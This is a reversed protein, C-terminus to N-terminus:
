RLVGRAKGLLTFLEDYGGDKEINSRNTFNRDDAPQLNQVDVNIPLDYEVDGVPIRHITLEQHVPTRLRETHRVSIVRWRLNESEVLIDDPSVPPFSIMRAGTDYQTVEQLSTVQHNKGPPDIQVYVEIPPLYGGLYGTGFCAKHNAILKRGLTYDYCSCQPGFTRAIFLWCKRGVFNRFYMDELRIIEAAELNREPISSATPGWEKEKGTPKHVVKIKYYYQRWKHILSVQMDRLMYQDRLPGAIQTYPGEPSDGSRLVYFEYDFIEHTADGRSGRLPAIKWFIDLHDLDFSRVILSTIEVM